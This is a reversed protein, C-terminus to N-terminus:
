DPLQRAALRVLAAAEDFDHTEIRPLALRVALRLHPPVLRQITLIAAGLPTTTIRSAGVDDRPRWDELTDAVRRLWSKANHKM